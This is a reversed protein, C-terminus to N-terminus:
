SSTRCIPDSRTANGCGTGHPGRSSAPTPPSAPVRSLRRHRVPDVGCRAQPTSRQHLPRATARPVTKAIQARHPRTSIHGGHCRAAPDARGEGRRPLGSARVTPRRQDPRPRHVPSALAPHDNASPSQPREPQPRIGAAPQSLDTRLEPLPALEDTTDIASRPPEPATAGDGSRAPPTRPVEIPLQTSPCAARALPAVPGRWSIAQADDRAVGSDHEVVTAQRPWPTLKNDAHPELRRAGTSTM